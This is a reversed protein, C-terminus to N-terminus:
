VYLVVEKQDVINVGRWSKVRQELDQAPDMAHEKPFRERRMRAAASKVFNSQMFLERWAEM